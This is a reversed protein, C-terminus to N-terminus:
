RIPRQNNAALAIIKATAETPCHAKIREPDGPRWMGEIVWWESGDLSRMVQWPESDPFPARPETM